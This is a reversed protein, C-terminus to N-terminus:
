RVHWLYKKEMVFLLFGILLYPWLKTVKMRSLAFLACLAGGALALAMYDLAGSYFLAIIIIAGLDDIVAIATLLVKLSLPIRSGLLGLVGLSFAIDTASPIAWGPLNEPTAANIFVYIAAPLAMGGVAAILPLLARDRSSLNGQVLEQKIELGVLLFFIAMLGDNIWHLVSRNGVYMHLVHDYLPYLASNAVLLAFAGAVVLVIGGAAEYELFSTITKEAERFIRKM